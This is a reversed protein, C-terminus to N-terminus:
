TSPHMVEWEEFVSPYYLECWNGKHDLLLGYDKTQKWEELQWVDFLDSLDHLINNNDDTFRNISPYYWLTYIDKSLIPKPDWNM